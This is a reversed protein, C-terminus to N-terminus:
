AIRTPKVYLTFSQIAFPLGNIDVDVAVRVYQFIGGLPRFVEHYANAANWEMLNWEDVGWEDASGGLEFTTVRKSPGKFDVWWSLSGNIYGPSYAFMKCRKLLKLRDQPPVLMWGTQWTFRYAAGDDDYGSYKGIIGDAAGMTSGFYIISDVTACMALPQLTWETMRLGGDELPQRVDFCFTNDNDPHSLLVFGDDPSYIMHCKDVDGVSLADKMYDRNSPSIENVPTAQEQLTRRLSRVGSRSWFIIDLEGVLAFCDRSVLGVGEIIEGVYMNAPNLGIESGSGDTWMVIHRKGFVILASGYSTIAVVEDMGQTWVSSMDILGGGDATAWKTEDLLASYKITQLDTDVAWVRGFAAWCCPGGPLTGSTATIDAFNGTGTYVIPTEGDQWALCKGNFNIFQWNGATPTLAGVISSPTSVGTFIDTATASIIATTGDGKIYEHLKRIAPTGSIPTANMQVWGKRSALRGSGDIVINKAETAWEPPLSVQQRQKALGYFAPNPTTLGTLGSPM